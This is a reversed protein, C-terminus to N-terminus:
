KKELFDGMNAGEKEEPLGVMRLNSHRARNELDDVQCVLKDEMATKMSHSQAKLSDIDDHNTSIREEAETVRGSVEKLEAQIGQIAALLADFRSVFDEKMTQITNLIQNPSVTDNTTTVLLPATLQVPSSSADSRTTKPPNPTKTPM